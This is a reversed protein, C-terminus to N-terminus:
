DEPWVGMEEWGDFDPGLGDFGAYGRRYQADIAAERRRELFESVLQRILASRGRRRVQEDADLRELLGEDMTIQIAKM